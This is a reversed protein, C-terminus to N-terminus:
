TCLGGDRASLPLLVTGGQKYHPDEWIDFATGLFNNLSGLPYYLRITESQYGLKIQEEKIVDCINQELRSFNM